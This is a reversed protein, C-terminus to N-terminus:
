ARVDGREGIGEPRGVEPPLRAGPVDVTTFHYAPWPGSVEVIATPFRDRLAEVCRQFPTLSDDGVLYAGYLLPPRDALPRSEVRVAETAIGALEEHIARAVQEKEDRRGEDPESLLHVTVVWEAYGDIRDLEASLTETHTVLLERVDADADAVTGPRMPLVPGEAALEALVTDHARAVTALRELSELQPEHMADFVSPDVDCVIARLGAHDLARPSGAGPLKALDESPLALDDRGIGFVYTAPPAPREWPGPAVHPATAAGQRGTVGGLSTVTRELLEEVMMRKLITHVETRADTWASAVLEDVDLDAVERIADAIRRLRDEEATM